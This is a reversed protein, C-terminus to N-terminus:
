FLKCENYEYNELNPVPLMEHLYDTAHTPCKTIPIKIGVFLKAILNAIRWGSDENPLFFVYDCHKENKICFFDINEYIQLQKKLHKFNGNEKWLQITNHKLRIAIYRKNDNKCNKNSGFSNLYRKYYNSAKDTDLKNVM